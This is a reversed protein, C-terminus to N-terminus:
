RTSKKATVVWRDTQRLYHSIIIFRVMNIEMCVNAAHKLTYFGNFWEMTVIRTVLEGHVVLVMWCKQMTDCRGEQSDASLPIRVWSSGM